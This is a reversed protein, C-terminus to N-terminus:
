KTVSYEEYEVNKQDGITYESIEKKTSCLKDVNASYNQSLNGNVISCKSEGKNMSCSQSLGKHVIIHKSENEDTTYINSSLATMETYGGYDHWNLTDSRM